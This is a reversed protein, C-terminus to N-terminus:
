RAAPDGPPNPNNDRQPQGSTTAQHAQQIQATQGPGNETGRSAYLYFGALGGLFIVFGVMAAAFVLNGNGRQVEPPDTNIPERRYDSM